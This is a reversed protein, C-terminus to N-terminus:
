QAPLRAGIYGAANLALPYGRNCLVATIYGSQPYLTLDGNVGPASGGHGYCPVGNRSSVALGLSYSGNGTDVKGTTLLSTHKPDLLRNSQIARAFAFFDDVTSYGGGAPTGYYPPVPKLGTALAGTYPTATKDAPSPIQSTSHMGAVRFINETYYSNFSQGTVRELIAGLLIYGYNSYYWKSGPEFALDRTGYLAIFKAPSSFEVSHGDYKPGFIEGTGGTHALLQEITVKKALSANPYDPLYHAITDGLAVKNHQVLQLIAVSTFMKGMSGICFQTQPINPTKDALNAMGFGHRLLIHDKKAVLVAGSFRGAAAEAQLKSDFASLADREGLRAISFNPPAPAGRFGIDSLHDADKATLIIRSFRDWSRDKVWGTIQNPPTTESRLLELGGSVDRVALDDDLYPLGDPLYKTIFARYSTPNDANFADLWAQLLATLQTQSLQKDQGLILSRAVARRTLLSTAALAASLALFERRNM